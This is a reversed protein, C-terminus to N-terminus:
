SWFDPGVRTPLSARTKRLQPDKRWAKELLDSAAWPAVANELYREWDARTGCTTLEAMVQPGESAFVELRIRRNGRSNNPRVAAAMNCRAQLVEDGAKGAFVAALALCREPSDVGLPTERNFFILRAADLPKGAAALLKAADLLLGSHMLEPVGAAARADAMAQQMQDPTGPFATRLDIDRQHKQLWATLTALDAPKEQLLRARLLLARAEVQGFVYGVRDRITQQLRWNETTRYQEISEAMGKLAEALAKSGAHEPSLRAELDEPKVQAALQAPLEYLLERVRAEGGPLVLAARQMAAFGGTESWLSVGSIARLVERSDPLCALLAGARPVAWLLGEETDAEPTEGPLTAVAGKGLALAALETFVPENGLTKGALYGSSRSAEYLYRRALDPQNNLYLWLGLTDASVVRKNNEPGFATRLQEFQALGAQPNVRYLALAPAFVRDAMATHPGRSQLAGPSVVLGHAVLRAMPGTRAEEARALAALARVQLDLLATNDPAAGLGLRALAEAQEAKGQALDAEGALRAACVARWQALRAATVLKERAENDGGRYGSVASETERATELLVPLDLRAASVKAADQAAEALCRELGPLDTEYWTCPLVLDVWPEPGWQQGERVIPDGWEDYSPQPQGEGSFPKVMDWDGRLRPRYPFNGRENAIMDLYLEVAGSCDGCIWVLAAQHRLLAPSGPARGLGERVLALAEAFRGFAALLRAARVYERQDRAQKLTGSLAALAEGVKGRRLHLGAALGSCWRPLDGSLRKDASMTALRAAATEDDGILWARRLAALEVSLLAEPSEPVSQAQPQPSLCLLLVAPLLLRAAKM